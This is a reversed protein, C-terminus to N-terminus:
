GRKRRDVRLTLTFRAGHGASSVVALDGKMAKMLGKAITLGLGIGPSSGSSRRSRYFPEFIQGLEDPQIGPGHDQVSVEVQPGNQAVEVSIPTEAPSYKIANDVLNTLVQRLRSRDGVVAPVPLGSLHFQRSPVRFRYDALLEELLGDLLFSHMEVKPQEADIKSALSLDDVLRNLQGAQEAIRALVVPLQKSPLKSDAALDAYGLVAGTPTRLDHAIAAVMQRRRLNLVELELAKSAVELHLRANELAATALTGIHTAIAEDLETFAPRGHRNAALLEGIVRSGALLPVALLPGIPPHQVPIGVAQPHARVDAVRTVTRSQLAAALLGAGRPHAVDQPFLDRPANYNFATVQFGGDRPEVRALATFDATLLEKALDVMQQAVRDQNSEGMVAAVTEAVQHFQSLREQTASDVWDPPEEQMLIARSGPPEEALPIVRCRVHVSRGARSRVQALHSAGTPDPMRDAGEIFKRMAAFQDVDPFLSSFPQGEVTDQPYGLLREGAPNWRKICLDSDIIAVPDRTFFFLEGLRGRPV